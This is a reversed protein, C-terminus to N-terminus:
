LEGRFARSLISRRLAEADGAFSNQAQYESRKIMIDRVRLQDELPPIPVEIRALKELGLTRNRGAGGPSAEGLLALGEESLFFCLLWEPIVRQRDAVCTLFRHSGCRGADEQQAIAVAGEWAFVIQFVLDGPEIWFLKKTGVDSGLLTPKHFTGKGFSRVGLEAYSDELRVAVARRRLPAAEHMRLRPAEFMSHNRACSLALLDLDAIVRELLSGAEGLLGMIEMAKAAIRRQEPIPPLPITLGLFLEEKIRVRNTSGKSARGCLDVFEDARILTALYQPVVLDINFDFLPFDNTVVAGDLSDPVTAVAGHRADIRSLILQGARAVYRRDSAIEAGKVVKRLSAGNGHLRVTIEKYDLDPRIPVIEGSRALLTGLAVERIPTGPRVQM